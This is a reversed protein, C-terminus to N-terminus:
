TWWRSRSPRRRGTSCSCTTGKQASVEAAARSNLTAMGINDVTVETDNNEGWEKTYENNFWKDYAPVFHDWQLIRLTNAARARRTIVFPAVGLAYAPPPPPRSCVGARLRALM